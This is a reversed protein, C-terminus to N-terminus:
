GRVAEIFRRFAAIHEQPSQYKGYRTTVSMYDAGVDDWDQIWKSWDRTENLRVDVIELGIDAPSRGAEEIYRHLLDRKERVSEPTQNDALWGDGLHAVRRLTADSYGGIWIPVPQQIPQPYIGVDNLTHYADDHSVFPKTWLGRLLSIQVDLRKGRAKMPVGMAQYEAENWGVSVGYRMRGGCLRDLLAVQKAVLVTQRSPLVSIGTALELKDSLAAIYGLLVLPELWATPDSDSKKDVIQEYTLIYDYGAGEIAQVFDRIILPDAGIEAPFVAGFKM